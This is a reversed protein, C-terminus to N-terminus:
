GYALAKATSFYISDHRFLFRNPSREVQLYVILIAALIAMRRLPLSSKIM